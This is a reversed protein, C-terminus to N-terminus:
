FYKEYKIKKCKKVQNGNRNTQSSVVSIADSPTLAVSLLSTATEWRKAESESKDVAKILIELARFDFNSASFRSMKATGTERRSSFEM